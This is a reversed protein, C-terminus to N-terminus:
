PIYCDRYHGSYWYPPCITARGRKNGVFAGQALAYNVPIARLLRKTQPDIIAFQSLDDSVCEALDIVWEAVVGHGKARYKGISPVDNLLDAIAIPDGYVLWSISTAFQTEYIQYVNRYVGNHTPTNPLSLIEAQTQNHRRTWFSRGFIRTSWQAFSAQYFWTTEDVIVRKIPVIDPDYDPLQQPSLGSLEPYARKCAESLLIGDLPLTFTGVVSTWLKATIVLPLYTVM